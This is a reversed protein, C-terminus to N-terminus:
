KGVVVEVRRNLQRGEETMNDGVPNLEGFWLDVIQDEDVGANVLYSRVSAARQQSLALNYEENGVSDTFGAAVAYTDPNNKLFGALEDLKANYESRLVASNFDFLVDGVEVGVVETVPVLREYATTKVIFLAGSVYNPNDIFATLPIVRSCANIKTVATLLAKEAEEAASSILYFCVDKDKVIEQAIQLPRKTGGRNKNYTGDTFMLISTKGDLGAVVERLGSLGRQMMTPGKGEDPLQDIAAAFTDRNYPQMPYVEHLKDGPKETTYIYIGAMYGLDPLRANGEKLLNKTAQIRSISTGPVMENASSSTDFLIIFNDATKIFDTETVIEKEMMEETIVQFAQVDAAAWGLFLGTIVLMSVVVKRM